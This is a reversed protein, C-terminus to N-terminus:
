KKQRRLKYVKGDFALTRHRVSHNMNESQTVFELNGASCDLTNLNKHNVQKLGRKIDIYRYKKPNKFHLAVLIHLMIRFNPFGIRYYYDVRSKLLEPTILHNSKISFVRGWSSVLYDPADIVRKWKETKIM